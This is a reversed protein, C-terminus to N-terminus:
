ISPNLYKIKSLRPVASLKGETTTPPAEQITLPQCRSIWLFAALPWSLMLRASEFSYEMQLTLKTQPQLRTLM